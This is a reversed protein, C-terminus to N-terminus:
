KQAPKTGLRSDTLAKLQENLRRQEERIRELKEGTTEQGRSRENPVSQNPVSEGSPAPRTIGTGLQTEGAFARVGTARLLGTTAVAGILFGRRDVGGRRQGEIPQPQEVRQEPGKMTHRMIGCGTSFDTFVAL